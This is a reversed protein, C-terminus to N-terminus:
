SDCDSNKLNDLLSFNPNVIRKKRQAQKPLIFEPHKHKYEALLEHLKWMFIKSKNKANPYNSVFAATDEVLARPYVKCIRIYMAIKNLDGLRQALRYGYDQFEQSVNGTNKKALTTYDALKASIIESIKKM